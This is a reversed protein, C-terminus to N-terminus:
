SNLLAHLNRWGRRSQRAQAAESRTVAYSEKLDSWAAVRLSVFSPGPSKLVAPLSAELAGSASFVHVSRYGAARAMEALAEQRGAGSVPQGGTLAHVRNELVMHVFNPPAESGVTLLVGLNMRLSGDGDLVIVRLEPRGLAIGLAISSAGGMPAAHTFDRPSRSYKPWLQGATMTAIVVEETRHRGIVELADATTMPSM